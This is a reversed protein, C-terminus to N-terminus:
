FDAYANIARARLDVLQVLFTHQACEEVDDESRVPM